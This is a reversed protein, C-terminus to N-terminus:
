SNATAQDLLQRIAAANDPRVLRGAEQGDRLLILTPWLKVAFTRGLRRGKGDEIKRHALQPHAQMAAALLPQAAQCHACWPAGFELLLWGRESALQEATAEQDQPTFTSNFAM